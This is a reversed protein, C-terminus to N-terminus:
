PFALSRLFGSVEAEEGEFPGDQEAYTEWLFIFYDHFAAVAEDWSPKSIDIGLDEQRLNWVGKEPDFSPCAVVPNLLVLDRRATIMRRFKILPFIYCENVDRLEALNGDADVVIRGTAIVLGSRHYSAIDGPSVGAAFHVPVTDIGNTFLWRYQRSPDRVVAGIVASPLASIDMDAEKELSVRANMRFRRMSGEPGYTMIYGELDDALALVDAAIRKRGMAEIHNSTEEPVTSSLNARDLEACLVTLADELLTGDERGSSGLSQGSGGATLTFRGDVGNPLSNQTRMERRVMLEGIDTLLNQVDIMIRGAVQVPVDADADEASVVRFNFQQM